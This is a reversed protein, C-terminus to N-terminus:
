DLFLKQFSLSGKCVLVDLVIYTSVTSVFCANGICEISYIDVSDICFVNVKISM